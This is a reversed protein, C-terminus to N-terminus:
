TSKDLLHRMLGAVNKLPLPAEAEGIFRKVARAISIASEPDFSQEPDIVDRVYDLESALVPLGAQRAEILPLGLSEIKSPYILASAKKYIIKLQGPTLIGKNEISLQYDRTRKTIWDCLDKFNDNDLTLKLSPYLGEDALLCWADILKRHNKHPEGSAVYLFFFSEM